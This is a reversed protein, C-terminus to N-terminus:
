SCAWKNCTSVWRGIVARMRMFVRPFYPERERSLSRSNQFNVLYLVHTHTYYYFFTVYICTFIYYFTIYVSPLILLNLSLPPRWAPVSIATDPVGLRSLIHSCYTAHLTRNITCDENGDIIQIYVHYPPSPPPPSCHSSNRIWSYISREVYTYMYTHLIFFFHIWM